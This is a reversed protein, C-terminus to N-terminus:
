RRKEGDRIEMRIGESAERENELGKEEIWTEMLMLEEWEKLSEWFDEDKNNLGVINM